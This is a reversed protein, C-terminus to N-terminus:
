CNHIHSLNQECSSNSNELSVLSNLKMKEWTNQMRDKRTHDCMWRVNENKSSGGKEKTIEKFDLM